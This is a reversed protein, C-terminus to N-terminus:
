VSPSATPTLVVDPAVDDRSTDRAISVYSKVLETVDFGDLADHIAPASFQRLGFQGAQEVRSPRGPRRKSGNRGSHEQAAAVQMLRQQSVNRRKETRAM